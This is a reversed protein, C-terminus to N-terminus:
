QGARRGMRKLQWISLAHLLISSPVTFAPTMVAPYSGLVAIPIDPGFIQLPGPGSLVGMTVAVAFDALGFINWAIAARRAGDSGSALQLAAPLAMIGTLVDGIGATWAFLGAATGHVWYVIFIGGLIRYAQLAVLWTAPTADLVAAISKSRLLVFLGIVVPAFIAIPLKPLRGAGPQFIGSAALNWVLALWLTFPIAVALWVIVRKSASFDTRLLGFWLGALIAAHIALRTVTLPIGSPALGPFALNIAVWVLALATGLVSLGATATQSPEAGSGTSLTSV